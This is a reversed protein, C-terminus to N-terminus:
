AYRSQSLDVGDPVTIVQAVNEPSSQFINTVQALRSGSKQQGLAASLIKRHHRAAKAQEKTLSTADSFAELAEISKLAARQLKAKLYGERAADTGFLAKKIVSRPLDIEMAIGEVTAGQWIADLLCDIGIVEEVLATADIPRRGGRVYALALSKVTDPDPKRDDDMANTKHSLRGPLFPSAAEM